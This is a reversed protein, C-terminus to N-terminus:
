WTVGCRASITVSVLTRLHEYERRVSKHTMLGLQQAEKSADLVAPMGHAALASVTEYDLAVVAHKVSLKMLFHSWNLTWDIYPATATTVLVLPAGPYGEPTLLLQKTASETSGTSSIKTTHQYTRTVDTITKAFAAPLAAGAAAAEPQLAAAPSAVASETHPRHTALQLLVVLVLGWIFCTTFFEAAAPSARRKHM